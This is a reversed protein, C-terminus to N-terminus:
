EVTNRLERTHKWHCLNNISRCAIAPALCKQSRLSTVAKTARPCKRCATRGHSPRSPFLIHFTRLFITSNYVVDSHEKENCERMVPTKAHSHTVRHNCEHQFVEIEDSINTAMDSCYARENEPFQSSAPAPAIPADIWARQQREIRSREKQAFEPFFPCNSSRETKQM